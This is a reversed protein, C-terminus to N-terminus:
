RSDLQFDAVVDLVALDLLRESSMVGRLVGDIAARELDANRLGAVELVKQVAAHWRAPHEARSETLTVEVHLQM